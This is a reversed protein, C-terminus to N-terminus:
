IVDFMCHDLFNLLLSSPNPWTWVSIGSSRPSNRIKLMNAQKVWTATQLISVVSARLKHTWPSMAHLQLERHSTRWSVTSSVMSFLQLYWCLYCMRMMCSFLHSALKKHFIIRFDIASILPQSIGNFGGHRALGTAIIGPHLCNATINVGEEQFRRTLEKAHLANALKSQGYASFASYSYWLNGIFVM